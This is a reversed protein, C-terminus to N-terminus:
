KTERGNAPIYLVTTAVPNDKDGAHTVDVKNGFRKPMLKSLYWQRADVQLKAKLVTEKSLGKLKAKSRESEEIDEFKDFRDGNPLEWCIGDPLKDPIEIMEEYYQEARTERACAYAKAFDPYKSLWLFFSTVGVDHRRCAEHVKLPKQLEECFAIDACLLAALKPSYLTPRGKTTKVMVKAKAQAKKSM